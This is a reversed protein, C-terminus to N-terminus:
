RWSAALAEVPEGLDTLARAKVALAQQHGPHSDLFYNVLALATKPDNQELARRADRLSGEQWWTAAAVIAVAAIGALAAFRLIRWMRSKKSADDRADTPANGTSTSGTRKAKAKTSTTNM